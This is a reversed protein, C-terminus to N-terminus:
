TTGSAQAGSKLNGIELARSAADLLKGEDQAKQLDDTSGKLMERLAQLKGWDNMAAGRMEKIAKVTAIYTSPSDTACSSMVVVM